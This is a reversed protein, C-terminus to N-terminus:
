RGDRKKLGNWIFDTLETPATRECWRRLKPVRRSTLDQVRQYAQELTVRRPILEKELIAMLEGQLPRHHREEPLKTKYSWDVSNSAAPPDIESRQMWHYVTGEYEIRLSRAM